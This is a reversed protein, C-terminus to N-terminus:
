EYSKGNTIPITFPTNRRKEREKIRDKIENIVSLKFNEDELILLALEYGYKWTIEDAIKNVKDCM